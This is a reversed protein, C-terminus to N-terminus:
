LTMEERCDEVGVTGLPISKELFLSVCTWNCTRKVMCVYVVEPLYVYQRVKTSTTSPAPTTESVTDVKAVTRTSRRLDVNECARSSRKRPGSGRGSSNRAAGEVGIEGIFLPRLQAAEGFGSRRLAREVEDHLEKKRRNGSKRTRLLIHAKTLKGQVKYGVATKAMTGQRLFWPSQYQFGVRVIRLSQLGLLYTRRLMVLPLNRFAYVYIEHVRDVRSATICM